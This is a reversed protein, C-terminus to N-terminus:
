IHTGIKLTSFEFSGRQSTLTSPAEHFQGANVLIVWCGIGQGFIDKSIIVPKITMILWQSSCFICFPGRTIVLAGLASNVRFSIHLRFVFKSSIALNGKKKKKKKKKKNKKSFLYFNYQDTFFPGFHGFIM